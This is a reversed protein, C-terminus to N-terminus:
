LGRDTLTKMFEVIQTEQAASLGLNGLQHQNMTGQVEAAGFNGTDRTNYFSTIQELSDFLGNHGYPATKDINRLSSVKFQGNAQPALFDAWGGLGLDTPLGQLLFHPNVPIGTNEYTFDTFLPPVRDNRTWSPSQVPTEYDSARSWDATHCSVCGAGEDSDLVGDNNNEGMFLRLGLWQDENFVGRAAVRARKSEGKACQSLAKESYSSRSSCRYLFYDYRSNFKAFERTREFATISKALCSFAADVNADDRLDVNGCVFRFLFRYHSSIADRVVTHKDPNNMELPNTFPLLGQDHLSDGTVDGTARGDLLHGGIWEGAANDFHFRPNFMTYGTSPANRTGWVGPIVGESIPFDRDPDARGASETHCSACSQGNPESLNTDFYLRKGLQAHFSVRDLHAPRRKAPRRASSQSTISQPESSSLLPEESDGDELSDTAPFNEPIAQTTLFNAPVADVAPLDVALREDAQVINKAPAIVQLEEPIPDESSEVERLEDPIPDASSDFTTLNESSTSIVFPSDNGRSSESSQASATLSTSGLLSAVILTATTSLRANM